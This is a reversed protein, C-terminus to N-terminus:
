ESGRPVYPRRERRRMMLRLAEVVAAHREFGFPLARALGRLAVGRARLRQDRSQGLLRGRVAGRDGRQAVRAVLETHRRLRGGTRQLARASLDGFQLRGRLTLVGRLVSEGFRQPRLELLAVLADPAYIGM